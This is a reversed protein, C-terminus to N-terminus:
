LMHSRKHTLHSVWSVGCGCAPCGLGVAELTGSIPTPAWTSPIVHVMDTRNHVLVSVGEPLCLVGVANVCRVCWRM